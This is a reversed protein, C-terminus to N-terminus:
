AQSPSSPPARLPHLPSVIEITHSQAPEAIVQERSLHKLHPVAFVCLHPSLFKHQVQHQAVPAITADNRQDLWMRTTSAKTVDTNHLYHSLKKGYSWGGVFLALALVPLVGPEFFQLIARKLASLEAATRSQSANQTDAIPSFGPL